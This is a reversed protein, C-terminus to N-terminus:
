VEWLYLSAISNYPSYLKRFEEFEAKSISELGHLKMLGKKIAFDGWSLVDPRELSFILLMEATWVGVGRLSSLKEIVENDGMSELAHFDVAGDFAAKAIGTIYEVKRHSMGCKQMLLPDAALINKPSIDGILAVFKKWVTEAAKGSIQQAVVSSVLAVFLDPVIKRELFGMRDIIEGLKSCRNKLFSIEVDGYKFCRELGNPQKANYEIDPM